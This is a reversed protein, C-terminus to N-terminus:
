RGRGGSNIFNEIAAIQRDLHAHHALPVMGRRVLDEYSGFGCLAYTVCQDSLMISTPGCLSAGGIRCGVIGWAEPFAALATLPGLDEGSRRKYSLTDAVRILAEPDRSRAAMLVANVFESTSYDRGTVVSHNMERLLAAPDGAAAASAWLNNIRDFTSEEVRLFSRCRSEVKRGIFALQATRQPSPNISALFMLYNLYGGRHLRAGLCYEYVMALHRQAKASGALAKAELDRRLAEFDTADDLVSTWAAVASSRPAASFPESNSSVIPMGLPEAAVPLQEDAQHIVPPGKSWLWLWAGLAVILMTVVMAVINSRIFKVM